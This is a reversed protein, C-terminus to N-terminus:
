AKHSTMKIIVFHHSVSLGQEQVLGRQLGSACANVWPAKGIIEALRM